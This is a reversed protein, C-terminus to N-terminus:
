QAPKLAEEIANIFETTHANASKELEKMRAPDTMIPTAEEMFANSLAEFKQTTEKKKTAIPEGRLKKLELERIETILDYLIKKEESNLNLSIIQNKFFAILDRAFGDGTLRSITKNAISKYIIMNKKEAKTPIPAQTTPMSAAQQASNKSADIAKQEADKIVAQINKLFNMAGIQYSGLAIVIGVISYIQKKM